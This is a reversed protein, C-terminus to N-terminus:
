IERMETYGKSLLVEDAKKLAERRTMREPEYPQEEKGILAGCLACYPMPKPPRDDDM